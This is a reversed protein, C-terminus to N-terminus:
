DITVQFTITRTQGGPVTGLSVAIESGDFSGADADADSDTLSAGELTITGATYTTDAPIDDTINLNTLSGSGTITAVLQYTITAGPVPQTGGFQDVITASKVLAVQAAQILFFSSDEGDAGTSGVVADGGGDGQGAFSTGPAGSGTTAVASLEVEARQGDTASVPIDSLIFISISADAALVPDNSGPSYLTDVGPDFVGNSDADLYIVANSTDFDDGGKATDASLTFAESGNGTNTVQYSTVQQTAGSDVAIDGPDSSAVTVDLLEDVTITVTNSDVVVSGGPGDYTAQAVNVIDTGAITGAAHASPAGIAFSGTGAVLAM